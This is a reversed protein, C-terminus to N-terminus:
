KYFESPCKNTVEKFVRYFTSVSKFGVDYSINEISNERNRLLVIAKNIKQQNLYHKPTTGYVAMFRRKLTSRSMNCLLALEDLSLNTYKNKEIIDEFKEYHVQFLSSLFDSESGVNVHKALIIILERLKNKIMLEDALDPNDILHEISQFYTELVTSIKIQKINYNTNKQLSSLENNFLSDMIEPHFFIGTAYGKANDSSQEIFMNTCKAIFGHEQNILIRTVQELLYFDDGTVFAFCAANVVEPKLERSVSGLKKRVFVPFGEYTVIQM